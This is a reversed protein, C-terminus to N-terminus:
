HVPATSCWGNHLLHCRGNPASVRVAPVKPFRPFEHNKGVVRGPAAQPSRQVRDCCGRFRQFGQSNLCKGNHLLRRHGRAPPPGGMAGQQIRGIGLCFAASFSPLGMPNAISELPPRMGRVSLVPVPILMGSFRQFRQSNSCKGNHLLRGARNEAVRHVARSRFCCRRFGKFDNPIQANEQLCCVALVTRLVRRVARFAICTQQM